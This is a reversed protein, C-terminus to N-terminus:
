MSQTLTGRLKRFRDKSLSSISPSLAVSNFKGNICFERFFKAALDLSKKDILKEIFTIGGIFEKENMMKEKQRFHSSLISGIGFVIQVDTKFDYKDSSLMVEKSPLDKYTELYALFKRGSVEGVAGNILAELASRKKMKIVNDELKVTCAFDAYENIIVGNTLATSVFSWSRPSAWAQYDTNFQYIDDTSNKLFSIVSPHQKGTGLAWDEWDAFLVSPNTNMEVHIFRNGLPKPIAVTAARDSIRNGAGICYWGEPLFYDGIRRDNILQYAATMVEKKANPLEDVFLIGRSNPDHPLHSALSYKMTGNSVFPIGRLDSFEFQSLSLVILEYKKEGPELHNNLYDVLYQVLSSKGIGPGGWIMLTQKIFFANLAADFVGKFSLREGYTKAVQKNESSQAKNSM